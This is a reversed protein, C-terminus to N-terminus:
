PMSPTSPLARVGLRVVMTLRLPRMTVLFALPMSNRMFFFLTVTNMPSAVSGFAPTTLTLVSLPTSSNADFAM